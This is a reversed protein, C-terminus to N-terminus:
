PVQSPYLDITQLIKKPEERTHINARHECTELRRTDEGRKHLKKNGVNHIKDVLEEQCEKLIWNSIEDPSHLKRVNLNKMENVIDQWSVTITRMPPPRREQDIKENKNNKRTFVESFHECMIEALEQDEIYEM